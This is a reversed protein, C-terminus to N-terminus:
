EGAGKAATQRPSHLVPLEIVQKAERELATSLCVIITIIWLCGFAVATWKLAEYNSHPLSWCLSFTDSKYFCDHTTNVRFTIFDAQTTSKKDYSKKITGDLM